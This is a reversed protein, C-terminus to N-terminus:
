SEHNMSAESPEQKDNMLEAATPAAKAGPVLSATAPAASMQCCVFRSKGRDREVTVLQGRRREKPQKEKKCHSEKREEGSCSSLTARISPNISHIADQRDRASRKRSQDKCTPSLLKCNKFMTGLM